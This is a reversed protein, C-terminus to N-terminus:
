RAVEPALESAVYHDAIHELAAALAHSARATSAARATFLPRGDPALVILMPAVARRGRPGSARRPSWVVVPVELRRTLLVDAVRRAGEHDPVVVTVSGIAVAIRPRQFLDLMAVHAACDRSDLVLAARARGDHSAALVHSLERPTRSEVAHRTWALGLLLAAVGLSATAASAGTFPSAKVGDWSGERRGAAAPRM